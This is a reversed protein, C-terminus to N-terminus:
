FDVAVPFLRTSLFAKFPDCMFCPAYRTVPESIVKAPSYGTLLVLALTVWPFLHPPECTEQSSRNLSLSLVRSLGKQERYPAAPSSFQKDFASTRRQSLLFIASWIRSSIFLIRSLHLCQGQFPPFFLSCSSVAFCDKETVNVELRCREYFMWNGYFICVM